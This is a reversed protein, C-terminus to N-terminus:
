TRSGQGPEGAKSAFWLLAISAALIVLFITQSLTIAFAGVAAAFGWYWAEAKFGTGWNPQCGSAAIRPRVAPWLRPVAQRYSEYTAGRGAQLLPEEYLILRWSFAVIAVVAVFFGARSMMAGMGLALPINALYLPNRVYRYPGDAVLSETNAEAAYVIGPRLYASAWTRILAGAALLLAALAFLLRALRDSDMELVGGLWSALTVTANRHDFMYLAFAFWFILGFVLARNPFEWYTAKM